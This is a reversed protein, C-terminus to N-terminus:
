VREFGLYRTGQFTLKGQDGEVLMGYENGQVKLEMRDGSMVEFTVYYSTATSSHVNDSGHTHHYVDNRKSVVKADVTLRPSDNNRKWQTAGAVLRSIFFGIFLLFFLCWIIPFVNFIFGEMGSFVM